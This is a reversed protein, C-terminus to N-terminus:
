RSLRLGRLRDLVRRAIEPPAQEPFPFVSSVNIECLVYTDEGSATRPGYLFDADWIIPLSEADIDLLQMMQPTWESEMKTRLTQFAAASAPHMIRPGALAAESDPGEPPPPILAKVLQHGFGVVKDASMYCRIMGDPLRPQFPQDVISGEAAFYTGCRTMFDGLPMDEPVSGRVAQLVRVIEAGSTAPVREVKWVGQGGNGRNQKLVRPGTSRLRPPFEARFAPASRYLHTDTGWGFHKTRHLIEKVGMKLIVDPHASVWVGRSAVDRLLADLATRDQGDSIPNVWVLVGDLKLLQERVESVMDDAYIAPEAHIGLAALAEFVRSLRNNDPTAELRAQRDGRWLLALRAPKGVSSPRADQSPKNTSM